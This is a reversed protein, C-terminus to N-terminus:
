KENEQKEAQRRDWKDVKGSARRKRMYDRQYALRDFTGRPARKNPSGAIKVPNTRAPEGRPQPAGSNTEPSSRESGVGAQNQSAHNSPLLLALAADLEPSTKPREPRGRTAKVERAKAEDTRGSSKERHKADALATARAVSEPCGGLRHREGCIRCKPLEM